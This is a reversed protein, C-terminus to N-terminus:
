SGNKFEGATKLFFALGYLFFIIGSAPIVALIRWKPLGLAPSIQHRIFWAFQTGSVIM